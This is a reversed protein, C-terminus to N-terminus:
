KYSPFMDVYMGMETLQKADHLASKEELGGVIDNGGFRGDPANIVLRYFKSQGKEYFKRLRGRSM